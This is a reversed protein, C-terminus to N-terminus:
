KSRYGPKPELKSSNPSPLVVKQPPLYLKRVPHTADPQIPIEPVALPNEGAPQMPAIVRHQEIYKKTEPIGTQFRSNKIAAAEPNGIIEPSIFFVLENKEQNKVRNKFIEGIIPIDALWPFKNITLSDTVSFLGALVATDGSKMEMNVRSNRSDIRIAGNGGAAFASPIETVRPTVWLNVRGNTMIKPRFFLKVGFEYETSATTAVGGVVTTLPLVVIGGALVSSEAGDLTTLVPRALMKIDGKSELTRLAVRYANAFTTNGVTWSAAGDTLGGHAIARTLPGLTPASVNEGSQNAVAVDDGPKTGPGTGGEIYGVGYEVQSGFRLGFDKSASPNIRVIQVRIRIQKTNKISLCDIIGEPTTRKYSTADPVAGCGTTAGSSFQSSNVVNNAAAAPAAAPAGGTETRIAGIFASAVTVAKNRDEESDVEGDLIFNREAVIVRVGRVGKLKEQGIVAEISSRVRESLEVNNQAVVIRLVREKAGEFITLITSGSKRANLVIVDDGGERGLDESTFPMAEVIEPDSVVVRTVNKASIKHSEGLFIMVTQSADGGMSAYAASSSQGQEQPQEQPEPQMVPEARPPTKENASKEADSNDPVSVPETSKEEPAPSPQQASVLTALSLAVVVVTWNFYLSRKM